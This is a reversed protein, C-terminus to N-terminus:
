FRFPPPAAETYLYTNFFHLSSLELVAKRDWPHGSYLPEAVCMVQPLSPATTLEEEAEQKRQLIGRQRNELEEIQLVFTVCMM